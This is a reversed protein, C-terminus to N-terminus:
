DGESYVDLDHEKSFCDVYSSSDLNVINFRSYLELYMFLYSIYRFYVSSTTRNFLRIKKKFHVDSDYFHIDKQEVVNNKSVSMDLFYNNDIGCIYIDKFGMFLCIALAKYVTVYCPYAKPRTIHTLNRGFVNDANWFAYKFPYDFSSYYEMPLFLPIKNEIVMRLASSSLENMLFDSPDSLVYYDPRIKRWEESKIFSNVAILKFGAKLYNNIKSPELKSLSPGNGFLFAKQNIHANKLSVTRRLIHPQKRVVTAWYKAISFQTKLWFGIYSIPGPNVEEFRKGAFFAM